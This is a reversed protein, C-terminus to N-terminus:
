EIRNPSKNGSPPNAPPSSPTRAPTGASSTRRKPTPPTTTAPKGFKTFSIPALNIPVAISITSCAAKKRAHPISSLASNPKSSCTRVKVPVCSFSSRSPARPSNRPKQAIHNAAALPVSRKENPCSPPSQVAFSPYRLPIEPNPGASLRMLVSASRMPPFSLLMTSSLLVLDLHPLLSRVAESPPGYLLLFAWSPPM